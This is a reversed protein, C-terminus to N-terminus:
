RSARGPEAPSATPAAGGLVRAVRDKLELFRAQMKFKDGEAVLFGPNNKELSDLASRAFMIDNGAGRSYYVSVLLYKGIWWAEMRSDTQSVVRSFVNRATEFQV